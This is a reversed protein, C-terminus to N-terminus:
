LTEILGKPKKFSFQFFLISFIGLHDWINTYECPNPNKKSEGATVAVVITSLDGQVGVGRLRATKQIFVTSRFHKHVCRAFDCFVTLTFFGLLM